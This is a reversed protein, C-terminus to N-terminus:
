APQIDSVFRAIRRCAEALQADSAAFSLRLYPSYGFASGPVTAVHAEELLAEAFAVDTDLRRGQGSKRGILAAVGPYAYFAGEPMVCTLGPIDQLAGVVMGRRREYTELMRAIGDADGDLAAVSGAQALTCVGSTSNGQVAVMAQILPVPGCAFGVRWGTMAYAKAMGNVILIRDALDPAVSLLSLHKKGDFTLHEYIEDSMVLVHPAERLVDAIAELDQRELIAGTPNNPFNLVLWKTRLTIAKRITEPDPRFGNEERCRIEVPVGGLMRTILPYSVWYPAPVIVEDGTELSAMLANFIIQKGGNAVMIRDSTVDLANDRRFKRAIADILPKQGPIPPYGTDGAKAAAYAAEIAEPPSPFDPQGLALSIVDAGQGRLERARAAMAITAPRPLDALRSAITFSM